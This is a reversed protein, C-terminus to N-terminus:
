SVVVLAQLVKPQRLDVLALMIQILAKIKLHFRESMSM